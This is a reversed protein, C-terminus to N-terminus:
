SHSPPARLPPSTRWATTRPIRDSVPRVPVGTRPTLIFLLLTIVAVALLDALLKAQPSPTAVQSLDVDTGLEDHDHASAAAAHHPSQAAHVHSHQGGSESHLHVGSFQMWVLTAICAFVLPRVNRLRKRFYIM